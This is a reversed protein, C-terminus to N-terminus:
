RSPCGSRVVEGTQQDVVVYPSPRMGGMTWILWTGLQEVPFPDRWGWGHRECERRAIELAETSTVRPQPIFLLRRLLWLLWKM